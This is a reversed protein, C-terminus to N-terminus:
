PQVERGGLERLQQRTPLVEFQSAKLKLIRVAPHEPLSAKVFERLEDRDDGALMRSIVASTQERASQTAQVRSYSGVAARAAALLLPTEKTFDVEGRLLKRIYLAGEDGAETIHQDVHEAAIYTTM